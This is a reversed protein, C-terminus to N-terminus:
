PQRYARAVKKEDADLLMSPGGSERTAYRVSYGAITESQVGGPNLMTRSAIQLCLLWLDQPITEFGHEYVVEITSSPGGWHGVGGFRAGPYHSWISDLDELVLPGRRLLSRSNWEYNGPTITVGNLAVSTVAIVPREPLELETGWTGALLATTTAREFSQAAEAKIAATAADLFMQAQAIEGDSLNKNLFVQLDDLTAFSM